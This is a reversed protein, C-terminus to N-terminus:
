DEAEATPAYIQVITVAGVATRFRASIIRENVPRYSLLARQALRTMIMGVGARHGEERGASIIKYGQVDSEQVGTWHTEAIGMVEWRLRELEKILCTVAGTARLTRVNWTGVTIVERATLLHGKGKLDDVDDGGGRTLNPKLCPADNRRNGSGTPVGAKNIPVKVRTYNQSSDM